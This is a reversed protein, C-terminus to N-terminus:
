PTDSRSQSAEIFLLSQGMLPQLVMPFIFIVAMQYLPASLNKARGVERHIRNSPSFM